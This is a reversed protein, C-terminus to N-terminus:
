KFSMDNDGFHYIFSDLKGSSIISQNTFNFKNDLLCQTSDNVTFVSEPMPYVILYQNISDKCNNDTTEILKVFHTDPIGFSYNLTDSISKSTDNVIWTTFGKPNQFNLPNLLTYNNGTLCQGSDNVNIKAVPMPFVITKKDISDVCGLDSWAILTVTFTDDKNYSYSSNTKSSLNGDGFIWIFTDLNNYTVSSTNTFVFNNARLCQSSDNIGFDSVPMPFTYATKTISDKCAFESAIVLKIKFTDDTAYQHVPDKLSSNVYDGFSWYYNSVSTYPISSRDTFNFKNWRVCQMSDNILYDAIPMPWVAVNKSLSDKCNLNSEAILKIQYYGHINYSYIPNIVSSNNSDGFNWHYTQSGSNIISNNTFVFQNGYFCQSDNNITFEPVPSPFVYVTKNLSDKCGLNSTLVLKVTFTDDTTYTITPSAQTSQQSNEFDYSYSQTGSNITSGDTFVFQNGNFCQQNNNISFAPEPSPFVYTTKSLSDRCNLNSTAILKVTFTDDTSYNITPNNLTSQQSNGFDWVYNQTGSNI